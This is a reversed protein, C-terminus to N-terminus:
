AANEAHAIEFEIPSLSGVSSHRRKPNYWAEIWEFVATALEQRTTWRKRDLLELQMTGFFSEIMANDYCSGVAGMSGLLGASRLKHGFAWSTFQSGRDSHVITGNLGRRWIAMQLADTVLETRLHTAMSWGVIRRSWVDLVAALYLKGAATQHETIDTLWLQNPRLARFQRNVLDVTPQAAAGTRVFVKRRKYVGQLGALRMLREVRKRSVRINYVLRLEDSIRPSGYSARSAAHIDVIKSTLLSDALARASLPRSRWAYFGSTSVKLTRCCTRTPLDDCRTTIFTYIM